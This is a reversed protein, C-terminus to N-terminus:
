QALSRRLAGGLQGSASCYTLMALAFADSRESPTRSSRFRHEAQLPFPTRRRRFACDMDDEVVQARVLRPAVHPQGPVAVHVEVGRGCVRAPEILDLHPERDEGSGRELASAVGRGVLYAFGDIREQGDVVLVGM